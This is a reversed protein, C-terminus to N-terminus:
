RPFTTLAFYAVLLLSSALLVKLGFTYWRRRLYSDYLGIVDIGTNHKTYSGFSVARRQYMAVEVM